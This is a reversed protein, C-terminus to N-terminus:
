KVEVNPSKSYFKNLQCGSDITMLCRVMHSQIQKNIRKLGMHPMSPIRSKKLRSVIFHPKLLPQVFLQLFTINIM